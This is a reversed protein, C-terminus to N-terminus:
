RPRHGTLAHRRAHAADLDQRAGPVRPDDGQGTAIAALRLGAEVRGTTGTRVRRPEAEPERILRPRDQQFTRGVAGAGTAAPALLLIWGVAM